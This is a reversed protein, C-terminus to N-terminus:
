LGLSDGLAFVLEFTEDVSQRLSDSSNLHPQPSGQVHGATATRHKARTTNHTM